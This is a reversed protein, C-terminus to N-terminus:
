HAWPQRCSHGSSLAGGAEGMQSGAVRAGLQLAGAKRGGKREGAQPAAGVGETSWGRAFGEPRCLPIARRETSGARLHGSRSGGLDAEEPPAWPPRGTAPQNAPFFNLLFIIGLTVCHKLHSLLVPGQRTMQDLFTRGEGRPGAWASGADATAM